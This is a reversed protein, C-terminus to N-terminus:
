SNVMADFNASAATGINLYLTNDLTTGDTVIWICGKAYGVSGDAPIDANLSSGLLVNGGSDTLLAANGSHLGGVTTM